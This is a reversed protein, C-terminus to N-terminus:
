GKKQTLQECKEERADMIAFLEELQKESACLGCLVSGDYGLSFSAHKHRNWHHPSWPYRKNHEEKTIGCRDCTSKDFNYAM